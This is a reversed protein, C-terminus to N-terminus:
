IITGKTSPIKDENKGDIAVAEKMARALAKFAAEVIHHSNTGALQHLHVSAGLSRCFAAMFEEVLESDFEGIKESPIELRYGLCARGSIDVASLILAEDMPLIFSGYRNIGRRDALAEDFAKGLVIAIDEATHHADVHIDGVCSVKLDFDGHRAFLELMHDLFGIGTSIEYEGNGDLVLMLKIDTESTKRKITAARM